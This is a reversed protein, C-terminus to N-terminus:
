GQVRLLNPDNDNLLINLAMVSRHISLLILRQTLNTAKTMYDPEDFRWVAKCNEIMVDNAWDLPWASPLASPGGTIIREEAEVTLSEQQALRLFYSVAASITPSPLVTRLLIDLSQSDWFRHLSYMRGENEFRVDNGGRAKGTLHLPQHLDQLLHLLMRFQFHTPCVPREGNTTNRIENVITQLGRLLNIGPTVSVIDPCSEPPDNDASYYHLKSTWRYRPYSKITDAWVSARGMSGNFSDLLGCSEIHQLTQPALMRQAVEGIIHHGAFGYSYVRVTQVFMFTLSLLRTIVKVM